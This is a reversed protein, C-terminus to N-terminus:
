AAYKYNGDYSQDLDIQDLGGISDINDFDIFFTKKRLEKSSMKFTEESLDYAEEYSIEDWSTNINFDINEIKTLSDSSIFLLDEEPFKDKFEIELIEEFEFYEQSTDFVEQPLIELIHTNTRERYEYSITVHLKPFNIPLADLVGKIFNISSKM